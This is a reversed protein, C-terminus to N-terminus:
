NVRPRRLPFGIRRYTQVLHSLTAVPSVRRVLDLGGSGAAFGTPDGADSAAHDRGAESGFLTVSALCSDQRANASAMGLNPKSRLFRTITLGIGGFRNPTLQEFADLREAPTLCSGGSSMGSEYGLM